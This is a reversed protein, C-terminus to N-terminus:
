GPDFVAYCVLLDETVDRAFIGLADLQEAALQAVLLAFREDSFFGPRWLAGAGVSQSLHDRLQAVANWDIPKYTANAWSWCWSYQTRSYSGLVQAPMVLEGGELEFRLSAENGDYRWAGM